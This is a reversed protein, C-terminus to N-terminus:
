ASGSDQIPPHELEWARKLAAERRAPSRETAAFGALLYKNTLDTFGEEWRWRGTAPYKKREEGLITIEERLQDMIRDVMLPDANNILAEVAEAGRALYAHGCREELFEALSPPAAAKPTDAGGFLDAVEVGLAGAIKRLTSPRPQHRGLELSSITDQGVGSAGALDQQSWGKRRRLERVADM